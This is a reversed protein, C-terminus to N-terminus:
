VALAELATRNQIVLTAGDLRILHKRKLDSLLRTVTERSSGIRQAMEEHTMISRLRAEDANSFQAKSFSLLLRALKGSSSRALVLDHMDRYASQFELSLSQAAHMGVESHSQLLTLLSKRDVFNVHCPTATEATMEYSQGCIAASLGLAEGAEATKLILVKGERSTSSLKVKGSCLVFLGRPMQGEVFLIAGPPLTSRHSSLDVAKAVVESFACFFGPKCRTCDACNEIIELGYPVKMNAEVASRKSKVPNCSPAAPVKHSNALLARAQARTDLDGTQAAAILEWASSPESRREWEVHCAFLYLPDVNGFQPDLSAQIELKKTNEFGVQLLPWREDCAPTTWSSFAGAPAPKAWSHLRKTLALKKEPGCGPRPEVPQWRNSLLV